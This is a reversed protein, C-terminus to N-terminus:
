LSREIEEVRYCEILDGQRIDEYKEFAMGCEQGVDVRPVEDKFRKLTALKGEHIVVNDRLLRVGAGREVYGEVVRCGAVKGVKSISFVELIEANGLMTERMEPSLMGSMAAKVDDVLDYIINYYRIEVGEREAAERAQKNARVNFGLIVANSAAALSVDSESIAGVGTLVVRAAVEDTSLKEVAQAIAEVSGQVDGKVLLPVESREQDKLQSMMDALSSRMGGRAQMKERLIRQRYETVERARAENEVVVFQDGASPTGNLGLVEVPTSPGAKDLNDGKDNILARVKGWEAGAVLIDGVALTGRQVLVTAVAGRGRDLQAEVVVGEGSREPNAKLDLIEAQLTIGELLKDLNTGKLASVEVELTEGGMSEVVVEHQLLETRVRSADAGQKDIKNIAVIMPVEAARAHNIAEITQPMVGDDAAVVLVVIDTVKAGRARMATFAEHGPTDVFTVVNGGDTTVQYAGIHQTIGGAEGAVVNANRLADLLSTKGHDVHGMITVVPARPLMEGDDDDSGYLGEEVDSEAVRRVKHGLEEAILQATDADIVDNIKVMQGQQMVMRIVDVAREAMRNALEQITITEPITVERAIKQGPEQSQASRKERERRRRISALSRAREDENLANSITLRGRRREGEGRRVPTPKDPQPRRRTRDDAAAERVPAGGKRETAPEPKSAAEAAAEAAERERREQEEKQRAEEELRKAEAAAREESLRAEEEARRQADIEAQAREVKERERAEVLAQARADKEDDTLTRLVMGKDARPPESKPKPEPKPAEPEPAPKPAAEVPEAPAVPRRRKKEVVVAKSRGHSFNQRVTGSEVTRKLSLTKRPKPADITKDGTNETDSM